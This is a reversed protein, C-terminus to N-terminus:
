RLEHSALVKGRTRVVIRRTGRHRDPPLNWFRYGHPPEGPVSAVLEPQVAGELLVEVEDGPSGGALSLGIGLTRHPSIRKANPPPDKLADEGEIPGDLVVLDMLTLATEYPPPDTWLNPRFPDVVAGGPGRVEFHLHPATSCGSSGIEGLPDGAAVRQGVAVKVSGRRLHLYRSRTGDAHTLEVLNPQKLIGLFGCAVNRDSEGDHVATVRGDAAALVPFGRDMWRFNPVDWDTGQHRNYSKRGGRYDRVGAGPDRDVYNNIVWDRGPVGGLPLVFRVRPEPVAEPAGPDRCGPLM